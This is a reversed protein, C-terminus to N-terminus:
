TARRRAIIAAVALALGLALLGIEIALLLNMDQGAQSQATALQRTADQTSTSDNETSPSGDSNGAYGPVAPDLAVTTPSSTDSGAINTNPTVQAGPPTEGAYGEVVPTAAPAPFMATDTAPQTPEDPVKRASDDGSNAASATTTTPEALYLTMDDDASPAEQASAAGTPAVLAAQPASDLSFPGNMSSFNVSAFLFLVLFAVVSGTAFTPAFRPAFIRELLSTKRARTAMEPTLTFARPVPAAPMTHLLRITAQLEVYGARCTACDEIHARVHEREPEALSRDIYASLLDLVHGERNIENDQNNGM